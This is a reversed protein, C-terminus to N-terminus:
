KIQDRRRERKIMGEEEEEGREKERDMWRAGREIESEAALFHDLIVGM